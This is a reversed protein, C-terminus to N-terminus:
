RKRPPLRASIVGKREKQRKGQDKDSKGKKVL